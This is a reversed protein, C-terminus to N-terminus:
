NRERAEKDMAGLEAYTYKSVDIEKPAGRNAGGKSTETIASKKRQLNKNTNSSGQKMAQERVEDFYLDRFAISLPLRDEDAHIAARKMQEATAWDYNEYLARIENDAKLAQQQATLPQIRQEVRQDILNNIYDQTRREEEPLQEYKEKEELKRRMEALEQLNRTELAQMDKYREKYAAAERLEKIQSVTLKEGDLEITPEQEEEGQLSEDTSEEPTDPTEEEVENANELSEEPEQDEVLEEHEEPM